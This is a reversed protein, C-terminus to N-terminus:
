GGASSSGGGACAAGAPLGTVYDGHGLHAGLARESIEIVHGARDPAHCVRVKENASAIRSAGAILVVGLAMCGILIKKQM